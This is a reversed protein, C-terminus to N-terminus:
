KTIKYSNIKRYITRRDFGMERAVQSINGKHKKLLGIIEDREVQALLERTKRRGEVQPIPFYSQETNENLDSNLLESPLHELQFPKGNAVNVIRETLNQLERVNGPWHYMHLYELILPDINSIFEEDIDFIKGLFHKFLLLIDEPRERLPPIKISLVNLRYFLDQRFTGKNVEEHLNKNSACIIRVNVPILRNGGIRVLNREQIVRLLTAQQELPMDGIEDLFITGGSALEFKGPNGGKKAGTFSGESYGFLESAILERPIAGCNLAVFPGNNCQSKNHISQAFLEKGTGSEGELLVNSMTSAAIKAMDIMKRLRDSNTIIDEFCFKAQAGTFRNILKHVDRIPRVLIVARHTDDNENKIPTGSALFHIDGERRPIIIEEDLFPQNYILMRGVLSKDNYLISDKLYNIGEQKLIRSAMQNIHEVNGISDVVLVGESMNSIISNLIKNTVSVEQNIKNLEATREVVRMELKNHAEHLKAEIMKRETIDLAVAITSTSGDLDIINHLLELWHEHNNKDIIMIEYRDPVPEYNMRKKNRDIIVDQYDPHVIDWWNMNDLEEKSCAFTALTTPNAYTFKDNQISYMLVPINEILQQFMSKNDKKQNRKQESREKSYPM